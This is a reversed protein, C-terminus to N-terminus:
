FYLLPISYAVSFHEISSVFSCHFIISGKNGGGWFFGSPFPLGNRSLRSIRLPIKHISRVPAGQFSRGPLYGGYWVHWRRKWNQTCCPTNSLISIVNALSKFSRPLISIVSHKMSPVKAPALFPPESNPFCLSSFAALDHCDCVARTKRDGNADCASRRMFYSQHFLCKITKKYILLWLKKNTIFGIITIFKILLQFFRIIYFKYSRMLRIPLLCGSLIPSNQSSVRAAPFYLSEKCPKMIKTTNNDTIFIM